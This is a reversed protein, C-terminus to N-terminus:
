VIRTRGLLHETTQIERSLKEYEAYKKKYVKWVPSDTKNPKMKSDYEDLFKDFFQNMKIRQVLLDALKTKLKSTEQVGYQTIYTKM